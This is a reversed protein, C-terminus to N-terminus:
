RLLLPRRRPVHPRFRELGCRRHRLLDRPSPTFLPAVSPGFFSYRSHALSHTPSPHPPSLTPSQTSQHSHHNPPPHACSNPCYTEGGGAGEVRREFVPAKIPWSRITPARDSELVRETQFIHSDLTVGVSCSLRWFRVKELIWSRLEIMADNALKANIVFATFKLIKHSCLSGPTEQRCATDPRHRCSCCSISPCRYALSESGGLGVFYVNVGPPGNHPPPTALPKPNPRLLHQSPGWVGDYPSESGPFATLGGGEGYRVLRVGTRNTTM